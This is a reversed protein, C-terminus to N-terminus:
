GKEKEEILWTLYQQAKKLDELERGKYPARLVYKLVNGDLFGHHKTIEIVEIGSPHSRYHSPASVVDEEVNPLANAPELRDTMWWTPHDMSDWQVDIDLDDDPDVEIVTGVEGIEVSFGSRPTICRVRDGVKYPFESM